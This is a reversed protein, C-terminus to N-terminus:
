FEVFSYSDRMEGVGYKIGLKYKGVQDSEVFISGLDFDEIVSLDNKLSARFTKGNEMIVIEQIPGFSSYERGVSPSWKLLLKVVRIDNNKKLILVANNTYYLNKEKQLFINTHPTKICGALILAVFIFVLVKCSM